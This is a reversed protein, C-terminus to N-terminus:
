EEILDRARELALLQAELKMQRRREQCAAVAGGPQRALHTEARPQKRGKPQQRLKFEEAARREIREAARELAAGLPLQDVIVLRHEVFHEVRQRRVIMGEGDPKGRDRFFDAAETVDLLAM